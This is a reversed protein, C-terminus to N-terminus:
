AVLSFRRWRQLRLTIGELHHATRFLPIVKLYRVIVIWIKKQGWTTKRIRRSFRRGLSSWYFFTENAVSMLLFWFYYHSKEILKFADKVESPVNLRSHETPLRGRCSTSWPLITKWQRGHKFMSPSLTVTTHSWSTNQCLKFARSWPVYGVMAVFYLIKKTSPSPRYSCM